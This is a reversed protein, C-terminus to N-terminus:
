LHRMPRPCTDSHPPWGLAWTSSADRFWYPGRSSCAQHPGTPVGAERCAEHGECTSRPTSRWATGEQWGRQDASRPDAPSSGSLGPERLGHRLRTATFRCGEQQERAGVKGGSGRQWSQAQLTGVAGGM